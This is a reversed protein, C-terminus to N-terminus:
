HCDDGIDLEHDARLLANPDESPAPDGEGARTPALLGRQAAACDVLAAYSTTDGIWMGQDAARLRSTAPFEWNVEDHAAALPHDARDFAYVWIFNTTVRLTRLGGVTVSTVTARGSVRPQQRADLPVAPDIWTAYGAFEATRFSESIKDRQAPAVLAVLRAPDHGTLMRDDLRGAILARRVQGLASSVQAATFGPVPAAAPLTIGAAGQPYSAAPTGAFPDAAVPAATTPAAVVPAPSPSLMPRVALVLVAVAIVAVVLIPLVKLFRERRRSGRVRRETTAAWDALDAFPDPPDEQPM